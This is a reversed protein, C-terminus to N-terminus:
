VQATSENEKEKYAQEITELNRKVEQLKTLVQKRDGASIGRLMCSFARMAGNIEDDLTM